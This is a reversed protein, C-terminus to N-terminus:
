TAEWGDDATRRLRSRPKPQGSVPAAKPALQVVKVEDVEVVKAATREVRRREECVPCNVHRDGSHAGFAVLFIGLGNTGLAVMAAVFFDVYVPNVGMRDALSTGSVVPKVSDFKARAEDVAKQRDQRVEDLANRAAKVEEGADKAALELLLRCNSVCTRESAKAIVAEDARTKAALAAQLRPSTVPATALATEADKLNKKAAEMAAVAERAPLQAADRASLAREFGSTVNYAEGALLCVGLM